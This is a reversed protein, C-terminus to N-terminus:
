STVLRLSLSQWKQKNIGTVNFRVKLKGFTSGQKESVMDRLIMIARSMKNRRYKEWNNLDTVKEEKSQASIPDQNDPSAVALLDDPFDVDEKVDSFHDNNRCTSLAEAEKPLEEASAEEGDETDSDECPTIVFDDLTHPHSVNFMDCIVNEKRYADFEESANMPSWNHNAIGEFSVENIFSSKPSLYDESFTQSVQHGNTSGTLKVPTSNAFPIPIVDHHFYEGGEDKASKEVVNKIDGTNRSEFKCALVNLRHKGKACEKSTPSDDPAADLDLNETTYYMSNDDEPQVKLEEDIGNCNIDATTVVTDTKSRIGSNSRGGCVDSIVMQLFENAVLKNISDPDDSSPPEYKLSPAANMQNEPGHPIILRSFNATSINKYSAISDGGSVASKSGDGRRDSADEEDHLHNELGKTLKSTVRNISDPLKCRENTGNKQSLGPVPHDSNESSGDENEKTPNNWRGFESQTKIPGDCQKIGEESRDRVYKVNGVNTPNIQGTNSTASQQETTLERSVTDLVEQIM